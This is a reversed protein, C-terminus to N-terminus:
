EGDLPKVVLNDILFSSGRGKPPNNYFFRISAYDSIYSKFKLGEKDLLTEGKDNTVVISFTKKATKRPPLKLTVRYWNGEKFLKGLKQPSKGDHYATGSGNWQSLVLLLGQGEPGRVQFSQVEQNLGDLYYDFSIELPKNATADLEFEVVPNGDPSTDKIYLSLGGEVNSVTSEARMLSVTGHDSSLFPVAEPDNFSQDIMELEMVQMQATGLHSAALSLIFLVVPRKASHKM